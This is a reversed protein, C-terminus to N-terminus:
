SHAHPRKDRPAIIWIRGQKVHNSVATVPEDFMNEDLADEPRNVCYLRSCEPAFAALLPIVYIMCYPM